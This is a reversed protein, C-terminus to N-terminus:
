RRTGTPWTSILPGAIVGPLLQAVAVVRATGAGGRHYAYVLMGIWVSYEAILFLLFSVSVRRLQANRLLSGVSGAVRAMAGGGGSAPVM